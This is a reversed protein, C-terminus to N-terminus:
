QVDRFTSADSRKQWSVRGRLYGGKKETWVKETMESATASHSRVDSLSTVCWHLVFSLKLVLKLKLVLILELKTGNVLSAGYDAALGLGDVSRSEVPADM